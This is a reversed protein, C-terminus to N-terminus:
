PFTIGHSINWDLSGNDHVWQKQQIITLLGIAL